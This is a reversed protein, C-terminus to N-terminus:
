HRVSAIQEMGDDLMVLRDWRAFIVTAVGLSVGAVLYMPGWGATDIKQTLEAKTVTRQENM